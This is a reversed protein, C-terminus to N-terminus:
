LCRSRRDERDQRCRATLPLPLVTPWLHWSVGVLPRATAPPRATALEHAYVAQSIGFTRLSTLFALAQRSFTSLSASIAVRPLALIHACVKLFALEQRSLTSLSASVPAPPLALIGAHRVRQRLRTHMAQRHSKTEGLAIYPPPITLFALVQRSSTYLSARCVIGM